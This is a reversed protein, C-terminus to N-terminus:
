GSSTRPSGPLPTALRGSTAPPWIPEDGVFDIVEGSLPDLFMGNITFDRRAADEEPSSFVVTEPRRGDIYAGDSRFTAVEVEGAQRPGLVKVVGFSVGVPVTRRFLGMVREPTADTAVDYDSPPLGLLLDRVCGGAWLARHGEERLRRVVDLAFSQKPDEMPKLLVPDAM